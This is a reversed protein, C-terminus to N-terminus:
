LSKLGDPQRECNNGISGCIRGLLRFDKRCLFSIYEGESDNKFSVPLYELIPQAEDM